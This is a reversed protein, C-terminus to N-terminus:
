RNSFDASKTVEREKFRLNEISRRGFRRYALYGLILLTWSIIRPITMPCYIGEHAFGFRGGPAWFKFAPVGRINAEPVFGFDRSDSSMAHNDGLALYQGMPVKLGFSKIFEKDLSGDAKVPPGRDIFPIYSPDLKQKELEIKVYKELNIDDRPIIKANMIYLDNDRFYAYRSPLIGHDRNTPHFRLDCEIGVNFLMAAKAMDFTKLPHDKSLKTLAGQMKVEYVTGDLFEYTGDPIKSDKLRPTYPNKKAQDSLISYRRLFGNEVKFRGTSLHEFITRLHNETLPIYSKELSASPRLKFYNDRNIKANKISAHHTLELYYETSSAEQLLSKHVLHKPLIRVQAFNGMGYLEHLDLERQHDNQLPEIKIDKGGVVHLKAVPINMQKILAYSFLDNKPPLSSTSVKGEINIFPIHELYDLSKNQLKMTIDNGDKDLGYIKGGYFYLTDGPLGCIRKVFQKYGPFLYFYKTKVNPIDMNEGTFTFVGMRKVREPKFLLHSTTLPINLGFQTKSVVLKDQEKYTPRMSGTPIEFPEFSSQRILIAVALAFLLAFTFEFFNLIPNKKLYTKHLLDVELAYKKALERDKSLYAQKLALLNSEFLFKVDDPLLHKQREYTKWTAKLTTEAKKLRYM